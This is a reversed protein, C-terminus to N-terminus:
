QCVHSHAHWDAKMCAHVTGTHPVRLEINHLSIKSLLAVLDECVRALLYVFHNLQILYGKNECSTSMLRHLAQM